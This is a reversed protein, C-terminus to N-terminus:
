HISVAHFSATTTTTTTTTTTPCDMERGRVLLEIEGSRPLSLILSHSLFFRQSCKGAMNPTFCDFIKM